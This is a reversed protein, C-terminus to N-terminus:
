AKLFKRLLSRTQVFMHASKANLLRKIGAAKRWTKRCKSILWGEDFMGCAQFVMKLREEAVAKSCYMKLSEVACRSMRSYRGPDNKAVAYSEQYAHYLSEWNIRYRFTRLALRPDHPWHIWEMSSKVVFANNHNVYDEMATHAPAVAPKGASMYEMLPLCQGEGHATNVVYTSERILKAYSDDDLFGHLAVVRCKFPALKKIERIILGRVTEYDYYALKMVLTVDEVERFAWCFGWLLDMWNKRGDNPNFVTTYIIGELHLCVKKGHASSSSRQEIFGIKDDLITTVASCGKFDIFNVDLNLDFGDSQVSTKEERYLKVYDDWVPAPISWVPFDRGMALQVSRVAFSSHTITRGHRRFVNRWDNRPDEGWEDTPLMLYEWAFVSITPCQLDMTTKFPPTFSLFLCPEGRVQCNRYIADVESGPNRIEIVFAFKELVPRYKKLVFYYSYDLGGINAAISGKTEASHVIIVM